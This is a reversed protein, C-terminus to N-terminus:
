SGFQKRVGSLDVVDAFEDLRSRAANYEKQLHACEIHSETADAGSLYAVCERRAEAVLTSSAEQVAELADRLEGPGASAQLDAVTESNLVMRCLYLLSNTVFTAKITNPMRPEVRAYVAQFATLYGMDVGLPATQHGQVGPTGFVEAIEGVIEEVLAGVDEAPPSM